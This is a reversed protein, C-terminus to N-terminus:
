SFFFFAGLLGVVLSVVRSLSGSFCLGGGLDASGAASHTRDDDVGDLVQHASDDVVGIVDADVHHGVPAAVGDFHM